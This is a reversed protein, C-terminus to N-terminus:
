HLVASNGTCQHHLCLLRANLWDYSHVMIKLSLENNVWKTVYKFYVYTTTRKEYLGRWSFYLRMLKDRQIGPSKCKLPFKTMMPEPPNSFIQKNIELNLVNKIKSLYRPEECWKWIQHIDGYSLQLSVCWIHFHHEIPLWQKSLPSFSPFFLSSFIPLTVGMWPQPKTGFRFSHHSKKWVVM